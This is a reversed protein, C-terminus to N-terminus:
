VEVKNFGFSDVMFMEDDLEFIDGVSSSHGDEVLREVNSTNWLNTWEFAEELENTSVKFVAEYFKFDDSNFKKSGSFMVSRKADYAPVTDGSNVALAMKDTVRIQYVTIM